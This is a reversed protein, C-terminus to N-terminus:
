IQIYNRLKPNKKCISNSSREKKRKTLLRNSPGSAPAFSNNVRHAHLCFPFTVSPTPTSGPNRVCVVNPHIFPKPKQLVQLLQNVVKQHEKM